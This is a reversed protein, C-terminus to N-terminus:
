PDLASEPDKVLRRLFPDLPNLEAARRYAQEAQELEGRRVALDGLLVWPVYDRPELRAAELLVDRALEYDGLRAYGAAEVYRAPLSRPSLRLASATKRLAERPEEDLVARAGEVHREAALQRGTSFAVLAALVLAGVVRLIPRAPAREVAGPRVLIAAALLAIGTLGPLNHLWDVSTQLLWGTFVGLAAAAVARDTDDSGRRSRWAGALVAGAFVALGLFGILGLESLVQLPLSHPQRVADLQRRELFYVNDYNGAGLGELPQDEWAEYAIRWLDYRQGGVDGFRADGTPGAEELEVTTFDDYLRDVRDVPDGVGVLGAVTAGTLVVALAARMARPAWPARVTGAVRQALWWVLGAAIASILTAWGAAQVLDAPPRPGGTEGRAQWVDVLWPAAAATAVGVLVLLWLRPIRGPM